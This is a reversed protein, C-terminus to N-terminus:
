PSGTNIQHSVKQNVIVIFFQCVKNSMEIVSDIIHVSGFCIKNTSIHLHFSFCWPLSPCWFGHVSIFFFMWDSHKISFLFSTSVIKQITKVFYCVVKAISIMKLWNSWNFTWLLVINHLCLSNMIPRPRKM